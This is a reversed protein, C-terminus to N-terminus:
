ALGSNVGPALDSSSYQLEKLQSRSTSKEGQKFPCGGCWADKADEELLKLTGWEKSICM